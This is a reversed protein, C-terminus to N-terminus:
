LPLKTAKTLRMVPYRNATPEYNKSHKYLWFLQSFGNERMRPNEKKAQEFEMKLAPNKALMEAAEDEFVYSSFWEKQQLIPDFLNWNFYSDPASPELVHVIYNNTTQNVPVVVDGKRFLMTQNETRTETHHHLYHGEYPSKATEYQDIFYVEGSLSIDQKLKKVEVGNLQLRDIVAQWAQPIVYYLPKDVSVTPRYSNYYPINKSFPQSRDYRLREKGTVESQIFQAEYGDFKWQTFDSSDLTWNIDFKTATQSAAKATARSATLKTHDAAAKEIIAKLLWHTAIVRDKFPKLMHAETTFGITNHLSTYGTSYRPLDLFGVIGNDPIKDLTNVYPCMSFPKSKDGYLHPLMNDNLYSSLAPHMKNHQSAILTMTYQYDAGNSTHTDIFIAPDWQTFIRTFSWANKSDCKIFDRNLDLNRANGRFGYAEPGNQNARSCCGRNLSGGVNYIPIIAVVVNNLPSNPQDIGELLEKALKLSADVGCPEGPHIGNNILIVPKEITAPNFVRDKSLVFLHLPEGSDTPGYQVLRAVSSNAGLQEYAAITEQYTLTQNQNFKEEQATLNEQLSVVLTLMLWLPIVASNKNFNMMSLM